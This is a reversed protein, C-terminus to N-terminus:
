KPGYPPIQGAITKQAGVFNVTWTYSTRSGACGRLSMDAVMSPTNTALRRMPSRTTSTLRCAGRANSSSSPARAKAFQRERLQQGRDGDVPALAREDIRPM